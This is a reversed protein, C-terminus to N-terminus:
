VSKYTGKHQQGAVKYHFFNFHQQCFASCTHYDSTGAVVRGTILLDIM